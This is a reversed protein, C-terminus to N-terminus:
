NLIPLAKIPSCRLFICLFLTFVAIDYYEMANGLVASCRQRWTLSM